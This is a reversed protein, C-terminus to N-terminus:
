SSPMSAYRPTRRRCGAIDAPLSAGTLLTIAYSVADLPTLGAVVDFFIASGVALVVLIAGFRLLRQEPLRVPGSRRPSARRSPRRCSRGTAAAGRDTPLATASGARRYRGRHPESRHEADPLLEVSRDAHLRAIAIPDRGTARTPRSARTLFRGALRFRTGTEGDIAASVFGPAALASSSLAVADPFLEPIHSGLEQDFMRIVVRIAPNLEVAALATNLNALDDDGTLVIM